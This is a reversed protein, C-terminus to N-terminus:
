DNMIRVKEVATQLSKSKGEYIRKEFTVAVSMIADNDTQTYAFAVNRINKALLRSNSSDKKMMLDHGNQWFTLTSGAVTQFEVKSYPPQDSAHRSVTVTSAKAQRLQRNIMNLSTRADRQIESRALSLAFFRHTSMLVKPAISFIIGMIAVVVMLEAM